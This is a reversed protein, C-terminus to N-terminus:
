RIFDMLSMGFGQSAVRLAAEYAVQATQYQVIADSLDVDEVQSLNTTLEDMRRTHQTQLETISQLKAGAAGRLTLFQGRSATINALDVNSITNVNGSQIDGKLTELHDYLQIFQNSAQTTVALVTGPGTEAIVDNTDGAFTITSGSVAYPRADTKQGAFIYEGGPGQSNALDLLRTQLQTIDDVMAQKQEQDTIATAGQQALQYARDAIEGVEALATETFSIAGKATTLNQQYQGLADKITRISIARTTGFPDDSPLNIRKGSSVQKQLMYMRETALSIDSTASQYQYPTSIRM